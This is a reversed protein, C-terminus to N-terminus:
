PVTVTRCGLATSHGPTGSVNDASACVRQSGRALHLLTLYAHQPGFDPYARGLSSSSLVAGVINTLRGNVTLRATVGGTTDPDIVWGGVVVGDSRVAVKSLNGFPSHRV